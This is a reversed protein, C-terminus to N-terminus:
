PQRVLFGTALMERTIPLIAQALTEPAMGESRALESTVDHLTREGDLATLMATAAPDLAASFGLGDELIVQFKTVHWRGEDFVGRQELRATPTLVLRQGLLDDEDTLGALYDGAAFVRLIHDSAPRLRDAPLEDARVWNPGSRRRLVLAGSAVGAIGLRELYSLWREIAPEFADTDGASEPGLWKGAHALPDDTGYHLLWADCGSGDIWSRLPASWDGGPEASWSVLVTAFAGEELVSPASEVVSRSVSDGEQGSDRFLFAAEPSIVYPPNCTLLGFRSGAVPEFFSGERLEVNGVENLALNFVAFDLARRNLDTAVVHESHPSTLIAQIGNGTGVDVAKEVPRRVTLHSLTLSPPQVGAVHDPRDGDHGYRDGAVLVEDHPVIRVLARVRGASRAILGAEELRELPVTSLARRAAEVGVPLELIFLKVLTGLPEVGELRRAQLPVDIPSTTLAVGHTDLAAHVGEGTFGAALLIGRLEAALAAEASPAGSV